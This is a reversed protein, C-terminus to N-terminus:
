VDSNKFGYVHTCRGSVHPRAQMQGGANWHERKVCRIFALTSMEAYMNNDDAGHHIALKSFTKQFTRPM